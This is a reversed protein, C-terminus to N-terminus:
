WEGAMIIRDPGAAVRVSSGKSRLLVIVVGSALLAGSAVFAVTSITAATRADQTERVPAEDKCPVSPCAIAADNNLAIARLGFYTGSAAALIGAAGLGIVLPDIAGKGASAPSPADFQLVPVDVEVHPHERDITATFAWPTRGPARATLLYNGPDVPVAVGLVSPGLPTGGRTLELGAVRAAGTARVTLTNVRAELLRARETAFRAWEPRGGREAASAADRFTVWASALRGIREYCDALSLETGPAPDLRESEALKPCAEAHRGSDLLQKGESFLAEATIAHDAAPDAGKATAAFAVISLAAAAVQVTRLHRTM